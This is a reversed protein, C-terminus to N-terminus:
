ENQILWVEAEERTAARWGGLDRGGSTWWWECHSCLGAATFGDADPRDRILWKTAKAGCRANDIDRACEDLSWKRAERLAHESPM